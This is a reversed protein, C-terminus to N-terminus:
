LYSKLQYEISNLLSLIEIDMSKKENAYKAIQNLNNSIKNLHYLLEPDAIKHIRKITPERPKDFTAGIRSRIWEAKSQNQEEAFRTLQEHHDLTFNVKVQKYKKKM